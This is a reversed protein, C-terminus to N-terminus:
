SVAGALVWPKDSTDKFGDPRYGAKVLEDSYKGPNEAAESMVDSVITLADEWCKKMEPTWEGEVSLHQGLVAVLNEAVAAYHATETKYKLHRIGMARLYPLMTDPTTVSAVIAAVSAMLKKHQEEPPTTFLPKVAPYKEFLRRYFNMGLSTLGGNEQKARQFTESLLATDLTM